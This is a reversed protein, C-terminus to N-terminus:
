ALDRRKENGSRMLTVCAVYMFADVQRGGNKATTFPPGPSASRRAVGRSSHNQAWM